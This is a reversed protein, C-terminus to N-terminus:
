RHITDEDFEMGPFERELVARIKAQAEIPAKFIFLAHMTIESADWEKLESAERTSTDQDAILNDLGLDEFAGDLADQLGRALEAVDDTFQGQIAPNNATLNAAREEVDSMDVVRIPYRATGHVLAPGDSGQMDLVAGLARLQEVRQHGAVLHGSAQNWVIGSLDGFRELSVRLGSKAADDIQRPNYPAPRLDEIKCLKKRAM